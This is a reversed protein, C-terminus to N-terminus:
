RENKLISVIKEMIDSNLLGCNLIKNYGAEAIKERLEPHKLYFDIKEKMEEYDGFFVAEKDPILFEEAEKTRQHLMFGGCLPIEFTRMGIKAEMVDRMFALVIKSSSIVKSMDECPTNGPIIKNKKRLCSNCSLRYWNWSNGYIRVDYGDRCLKELYEVRKEGKSYTGLFVIDAGLKEKEDASIKVPYHCSTDAGFLFWYVKKAGFKYMADGDERRGAIYLDFLPMSKYFYNSHYNFIDPSDLTLGVIKARGGANKKIKVITEPYILTPKIFFIFDFNGSSARELVVKNLNRVGYGFYHPTKFFKNFVRNIFSLKFFDGTNIKETKIGLKVLNNYILESYAGRYNEGVLLIKM